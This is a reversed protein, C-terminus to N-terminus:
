AIEYDILEKNVIQDIQELNKALKSKIKKRLTGITGSQLNELDGFNSIEDKLINQANIASENGLINLKVHIDNSPDFQPIPFEWVKKEIDRASKIKTLLSFV